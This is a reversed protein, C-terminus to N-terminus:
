KDHDDDEQVNVSDHVEKSRHFQEIEKKALMLETWVQVTDLQDKYVTGSKDLKRCLEQLKKEIMLCLIVQNKQFTLLIM